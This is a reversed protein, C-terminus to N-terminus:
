HKVYYIILFIQAINPGFLSTQTEQLPTKKQNARIEKLGELLNEKGIKGSSLQLKSQKVSLAMNSHTKLDLKNFLDEVQPLNDDACFKEFEKFLNINELLLERLGSTDTIGNRIDTKLEEAFRLELDNPPRIWPKELVAHYCSSAFSRANNSGLRCVVLPLHLWPLLWKEFHKLAKIIGNELDNFFSGFEESTLNDLAELLEDSFFMEYNKVLEELFTHWEYVKDPMEHARRGPPLVSLQNNQYIRPIKDHGVLFQLVPEYFHEAFNVLCKIQIKLKPDLLWLRFLHWDNLYSKPTKHKEMETIFWQTFEIHALRRNLYQKATKLEYGWRLRLPLQYQNFHYGLLGDYLDKIIQSNINLSKDKDSSDYGDHLKWALYLLNYVHPKKSFGTTNSLLGFAEQEFHNM